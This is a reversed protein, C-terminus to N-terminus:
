TPSLIAIVRPQDAHLNFHTKLPLLSQELSAVQPPDSPAAWAALVVFGTCVFAAFKPCRM